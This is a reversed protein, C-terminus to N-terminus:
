NQMRRITAGDVYSSFSSIFAFTGKLGEARPLSNYHECMRTTVTKWDLVGQFGRLISFEADTTLYKIQESIVVDNTRTPNQYTILKQVYETWAPKTAWDLLDRYNYVDEYDLRPDRSIAAWNVHEPYKSM